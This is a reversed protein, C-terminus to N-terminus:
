SLDFNTIEGKQVSEYPNSYSFSRTPFQTQMFGLDQGQVHGWPSYFLDDAPQTDKGNFLGSISSSANPQQPDVKLQHNWVEGQGWLLNTGDNLYNSEKENVWSSLHSSSSSPELLYKFYQLDLNPLFMDCVDSSSPKDTDQALSETLYLNQSESIKQHKQPRFCEDPLDDLSHIYKAATEETPGTSTGFELGEGILSAIAFYSSFYYIIIKLLASRPMDM